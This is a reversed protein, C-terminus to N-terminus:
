LSSCGPKNNCSCVSVSEVRAQVQASEERCVVAEIAQMKKFFM